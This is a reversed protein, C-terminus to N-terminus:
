SGYYQQGRINEHEIEPDKVGEAEPLKDLGTKLISRVSSLRYSKIKLARATAAELREPGYDKVLAIVGSCTRKTSEEHVGQSMAMEVFAGTNPGINKGKEILSSRNWDAYAQHEKPMHEKLTTAKGIVYSREHTAIRKTKYIIEVIQHTLTVDVKKGELGHPVSYYHERVPVHYNKLVTQVEWEVYKFRESPLPKLAPKDITEYLEKRSTNLKQFEKANLEALKKRVEMNAEEISFFTHNRLAAIIWTGVFRVGSEVKSKDQPQRVRAPIIVTGYHEAMKEYTRNITPEYRSAKTIASKLNDPVIIEPVGDFFEFADVNATIWDELCQSKYLNAFDYSSAGLTAVFMPAEWTEGTDKNTIEIGKGAYDVFMKEGAKHNQLMSVDNLKKWRHFLECYQSYSYGDDPYVEKYEIWLRYLTM